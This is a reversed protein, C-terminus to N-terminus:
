KVYPWPVASYPMQFFNYYAGKLRYAMELETDFIYTVGGFDIEVWGHPSRRTGVVGAIPRDNYGLQRALYYFVSAYCYCNGQRTEFM